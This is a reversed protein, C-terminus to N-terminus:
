VIRGGQVVYHIAWACCMSLYIIRRRDMSKKSTNTYRSVAHIPEVVMMQEVEPDDCAFTGDGGGAFAEIELLGRDGRLDPGKLFRQPVLHERADAPVELEGFGALDDIAIGILNKREATLEEVCELPPGGAPRHLEVDTHRIDDGLENRM